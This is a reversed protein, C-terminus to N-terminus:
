INQKKILKIISQQLELTSYMTKATNLEELTTSKNWGRELAKQKPTENLISWLRMSELAKVEEVISRLEDITAIKGGLVLTGKDETAVDTVIVAGLMSQLLWNKIRQKM